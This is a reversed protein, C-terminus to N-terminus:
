TTVTWSSVEAVLASWPSDAVSGNVQDIACYGFSRPAPLMQARDGNLARKGESREMPPVVWGKRAGAHLPDRRAESTTQKTPATELQSTVM